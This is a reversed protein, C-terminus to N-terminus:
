ELSRSDEVALEIRRGLQGGSQNWEDIAMQMGNRTPAGFAATDGSFPALLAVKLPNSPAKTMDGSAPDVGTDLEGGALM